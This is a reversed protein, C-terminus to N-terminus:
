REDVFESLDRQAEESWVPQMRGHEMDSLDSPLMGRHEAEQRLGRHAVDIRWRKMREGEAIRALQEPTVTGSGCCTDCAASQGTPNPSGPQLGVPFIMVHFGHGACHPCARDSVVSVMFITETETEAEPQAM